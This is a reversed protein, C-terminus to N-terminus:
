PQRLAETVEPQIKLLRRVRAKVEDPIAHGYMEPHLMDWCLEILACYHAVRDETMAFDKGTM